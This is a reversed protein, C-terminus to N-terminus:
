EHSFCKGDKKKQRNTKLEGKALFYPTMYLINSSVLKVLLTETHTSHESSM